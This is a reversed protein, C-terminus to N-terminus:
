LGRSDTSDSVSPSRQVPEMDGSILERTRQLNGSKYLYWLAAAAVNLILLLSFLTWCAACGGSSVHLYLYGRKTGYPNSAECQYLGNLDSTMSLFQLTAGEVRVASQPCSNNFRSWTFKADPNAETVCEFSGSAREHIYVETPPFYVQLTFPLTQERELAANNVVCQVLQNNIERSPIGFLSCVTTTTGNDQQNYNSTARLKDALDGTQWRVEAPPRSGAATCTVLSVEKDGLVPPHAELSSVPPVLVNLPIQTEHNGSPFLTFICTYTGENMLTVNFLQLSGNSDDISGIFKFREDGGNVFKPGDKPLITFFNENRPKGRTMRQWSIQSLTERTDILKCPLVVTGGQAVMKNGGIVQLAETVTSLIMASVLMFM